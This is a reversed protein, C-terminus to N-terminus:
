DVAAREKKGTMKLMVFYIAGVVVLLYTLAAHSPRVTPSESLFLVTSAVFLAPWLLWAILQDRPTYEPFTEARDTRM